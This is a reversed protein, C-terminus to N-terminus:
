RSPCTTRNPDWLPSPPKVPSGNIDQTLRWQPLFHNRTKQDLVKTIPQPFSRTRSRENKLTTLKTVRNITNKELAQQPNELLHCASAWSPNIKRPSFPLTHRCKGPSDDAM